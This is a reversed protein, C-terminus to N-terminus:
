LLGAEKIESATAWRADGHLSRATRAQSLCAVLPLGFVLLPAAIAATLLRARQLPHDGYALWYRHWLDLSFEQPLTKNLLFYLQGALCASVAIGCGLATLGLLGIFFHTPKM